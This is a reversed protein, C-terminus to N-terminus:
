VEVRACARRRFVRAMPKDQYTVEIPKPSLATVQLMVFRAPHLHSTQWMHAAMSGESGSPRSNMSALGTRSTAIETRTDATGSRRSYTRRRLGKTQVFSQAPVLGLSTPSASSVRTASGQGATSISLCRLRLVGTVQM